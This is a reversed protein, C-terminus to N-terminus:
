KYRFQKPTVGVLRKFHLNLHSQHAFGVTQAIDAISLKGELLLEKARDVRTRIVYKHPTLGASQKFLKSFYRPSMGVINALEQLGLDRDIHARIYDIVLQLNYRSLGGKYEPLVPKTTSYQQILHVLLANAMTDIYLRSYANNELAKKLALGMQLILPDSIALHPILQVQQSRKSIRTATRTSEEVARDFVEPALGLMIFESEGRWCSKHAVNAPTIIIDGEVVQHSYFRGDLTRETWIRDPVKNFIM